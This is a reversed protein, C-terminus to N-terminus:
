AAFRTLSDIATDLNQSLIRQEPAEEKETGAVKSAHTMIARQEALFEKLVGVAADRLVDAHGSRLGDIIPDTEARILEAYDAAYTRAGRRRRWWRSWMSGSIDLAITQGLIVPPPARPPEPTEVEIPSEAATGLLNSYLGSLETATSQLASETARRSNTTFVRYASRLLVRLGTPDYQWVEDGSSQDLHAVLASTARELFNRHSRDLRRAFEALLENFRASLAEVQQAEIRDLEGVLQSTDVNALRGELASVESIRDSAVLGRGHNIASRAVKVLAERGVGEKVREAVADCLAPVGSLQWVLALPDDPADDSAKALNVLAEASAADMEDVSDLLAMNAWYGSGFVIEADDPGQHERLTKQISDRIEPIQTAPESLEDVRNVFIIVERSRVNAVLRILAMDVSSLAQHASLVMVCIRSERTARITIQERMMFTDNVGPTDRICLRMPFEPRGMFLDAARTIDAFRGQQPSIQDDEEDEFDDGLCVYREVLESDFYGYDHRQGLLLEFKRGLRRMSKARMEEVQERVKGLEDEAGARSALEGIRGGRSVLRDWEDQDFFDFSARTRELPTTPDFHLSTVVSTWPNVDAPLLGPRGALANVLTTKGAKVQGIMTVAPELGALQQAMKQMSRKTTDDGAAAIHDLQQSLESMESVLPELGSFAGKLLHANPPAGAHDGTGIKLEANM